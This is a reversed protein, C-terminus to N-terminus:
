IYMVSVGILGLSVVMLGTVAGGRFAVRLAANLGSTAAQATRVNSRVAVNMGIYGAAASLVAGVVFCVATQWNLAVLLLIAIVVGVIGVTRYQRNLYAAAGEQIAQALSIMRANGQPQQLVWRILLGGAIIGVIGCLAAFYPASGEM